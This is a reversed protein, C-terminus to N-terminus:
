NKIYKVKGKEDFIVDFTNFRSSWYKWIKADTSPTKHQPPYGIALIVGDRTMGKFVKGAEVGEKDIANLKRLESKKCAPGFYKQINADFSGSAKHYLYQYKKGEASFILKKSSVDLLDVETCRPIFGAQQYNISYLRHRQDDPHLNTQTYVKNAQLLSTQGDALLLKPTSSCATVALISAITLSKKLM